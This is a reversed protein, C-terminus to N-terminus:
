PRRLWRLLEEGLIRYGKKGTMKFRLGVRRLRYMEKPKYGIKIAAERVRYLKFPEIDFTKQPETEVLKEIVQRSGSELFGLNSAKSTLGEAEYNRAQFESM